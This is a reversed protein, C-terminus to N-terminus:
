RTAGGPGRPPAPVAPHDRTRDVHRWLYGGAGPTAEITRGCERCVRTMVPTGLTRLLGGLEALLRRAGALDLSVVDPEPCADVDYVAPDGPHTQEIVLVRDSWLYVRTQGSM